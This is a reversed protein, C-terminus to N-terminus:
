PNFGLRRILKDNLQGITGLRRYGEELTDVGGESEVSLGNKDLKFQVIGRLERANIPM